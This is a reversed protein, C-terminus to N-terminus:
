MWKRKQLFLGRGAIKRLDDTIWAARHAASCKYDFCEAKVRGPIEATFVFFVAAINRSQLEANQVRCKNVRVM